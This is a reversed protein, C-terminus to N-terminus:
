PRSRRRNLRPEAFPRPQVRSPRRRVNGPDVGANPDAQCTKAPEPRHCRLPVRRPCRKARTFRLPDLKLIRKLYAFLMEVKKRQFRSTQYGEPKAIDRALDRAGEYASRAIKAQGIAITAEVDVIIANDIDVVYNASYAFFAPGRHAATWCTAPDAPAIFRPTVQQVSHQM